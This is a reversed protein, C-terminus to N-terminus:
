WRWAALATLSTSPARLLRVRSKSLISGTSTRRAGTPPSGTADRLREPVKGGDIAHPCSSQRSSRRASTRTASCTSGSPRPWGARTARALLDHRAISPTRCARRWSSTLTVDLGLVLNVAPTFANSPPDKRQAKVTRQWDFYYAGRPGPKEAAYALARESVGAFALGPPCMLAKQSGAVVVDM